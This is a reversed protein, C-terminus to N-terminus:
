AAPLLIGELQWVSTFCVGAGAGLCCQSADAAVVCGQQMQLATKHLCLAAGDCSVTFIVQLIRRSGQGHRAARNQCHPHGVAQQAALGHLWRDSGCVMGSGLRLARASTLQLLRLSGAHRHQLVQTRPDPNSGGGGKTARGERCGTVPQSRAQTLPDAGRFAVIVAADTSAVLWAMDPVYGVAASLHAPAEQLAHLQMGWRCWAGDRQTLLAQETSTTLLGPVLYRSAHPMM